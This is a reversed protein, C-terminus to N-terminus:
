RLLRTIGSFDIDSFTNVSYRVVTITGLLGLVAIAAVRAAGLHNYEYLNQDYIEIPDNAPVWPSLTDPQLTSKIYDANDLISEITTRATLEDQTLNISDQARDILAPWRTKVEDLLIRRTENDLPRREEKPEYFPNNESM